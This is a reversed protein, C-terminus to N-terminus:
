KLLSPIWFHMSLALTFKETLSIHPYSPSVCWDDCWKGRKKPACNARTSVSWFSSNRSNICQISSSTTRVAVISGYNHWPTIQVELLQPYPLFNTLYNLAATWENMLKKCTCQGTFWFSNKSAACCYWFYGFWSWRIISRGSTRKKTSHCIVAISPQRSGDSLIEVFCWFHEPFATFICHVNTLFDVFFDAEKLFLLQFHRLLIFINCVGCFSTKCDQWIFNVLLLHLLM